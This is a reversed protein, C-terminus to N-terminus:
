LVDGVVVLLLLVTRTAIPSWIWFCVLLVWLACVEASRCCFLIASHYKCHLNAICSQDSDLSDPNRVESEQIRVTIRITVLISSMPGQSGELFNRWFGNVDKDTILRVSLCVFLGFYFCLRRRRRLYHLFYCCQGLCLMPRYTPCTVRLLTPFYSASVTNSHVMSPLHYRSFDLSLSNIVAPLPSPVLLPNNVVSSSPFCPFEQLNCM